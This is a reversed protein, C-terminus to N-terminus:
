CIQFVCICIISSKFSHMHIGVQAYAYIHMHINAVYKHLFVNQILFRCASYCSIYESSMQFLNSNQHNQALPTLLISVEKEVKIGIQEM